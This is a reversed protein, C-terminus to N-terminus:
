NTSHVCRSNHTFNCSWLQVSSSYIDGDTEWLPQILKWEEWHQVDEDNCRGSMITPIEKNTQKAMRHICNTCHIEKIVLSKSCRLLDKYSERFHRKVQKAWEFFINSKRRKGISRNIRNIMYLFDKCTNKKLFREM